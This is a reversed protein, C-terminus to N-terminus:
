GDPEGEQDSIEKNYSSGHLRWYAAVVLAEMAERSKASLHPDSTASAIQQDLSPGGEAEALVLRALELAAEPMRGFRRFRSGLIARALSVATEPESM